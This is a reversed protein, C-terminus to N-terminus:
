LAEGRYGFVVQEILYDRLKLRREDAELMKQRHNSTVKSFLENLATLRGFRGAFKTSDQTMLLVLLNRMSQTKKEDLLLQGVTSLSSSPVISFFLLNLALSLEDITFEERYLPDLITTFMNVYMRDAGDGSRNVLEFLDTGDPLTISKHGEFYSDIAQIAITIQFAASRLLEEQDNINFSDFGPINKIYEIACALDITLWEPIDRLRRILHLCHRMKSTTDNVCKIASSTSPESISSIYLDSPLKMESNYVSSTVAERRMGQQLCRDLRCSRCKIRTGDAYQSLDSLCKSNVRICRFSSKSLICRRFFTKCGNCSAVNYHYGTAPCSCIACPLDFVRREKGSSSSTKKSPTSAKSLSPSPSSTSSGSTSSIASPSYIVFSDNYGIIPLFLQQNHIM